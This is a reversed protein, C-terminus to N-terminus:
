FASNNGSLVRTNLCDPKETRLRRALKGFGVRNVEGGGQKGGGEWIVTILLRLKAWFKREGVQPALRQQHSHLACIKVSDAWQASDTELDRHGHTTQTHTRAM